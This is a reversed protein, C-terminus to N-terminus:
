GFAIKDRDRQNIFFSITFIIFGILAILALWSIIEVMHTPSLAQIILISVGATGALLLGVIICLARIKGHKSTESGVTLILILFPFSAIGIVIALAILVLSFLNFHPQWHVITPLGGYAIIGEVRTAQNQAFINLFLSLLGSSALGWFFMTGLSSYKLWLFSVKTLFGVSIFLLFGFGISHAINIYYPNHIIIGSLGTLSLATLM